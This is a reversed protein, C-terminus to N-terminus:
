KKTGGKKTGAKGAGAKRTGRRAPAKKPAPRESTRGGILSLSDVANFPYQQVSAQGTSELTVDVRRNSAWVIKQLNQKRLMRSREEATMEPNTNVLASVQAATLNKEKGHGQTDVNAAPIGQQVLYSKVAAARRESLALNFTSSGRQDAHGELLLRADPKVRLYGNLDQAVAQLTKKQSESLGAEPQRATPLNLQFYVSRLTLSRPRVDVSVQCDATGGRGDDVHGSVTVAGQASTTDLRVSAGSGRVQGGSTTWTYSLPDGDPDSANATITVPDGSIVSSKDASCTMTPPRNPRPNVTIDTSCPVIHGHGDNVSVAATYTGPAADGANWRVESGSGDVRGGTASWAYTLPDNDPDTAQARLIVIDGSGAFIANPTASCSVVPPGNQPPPPPPPAAESYGFRFVLGTSLRVGNQRDKGTADNFKTFLYDAQFTRWAFHRNLNLDLGGGLLAGFVNSHTSAVSSASIRTMGFLTHAFPTWKDNNHSTFTPGFMFTFAKGTTGPNLERISHGGFDATLGLWPRVNGTIQGTVGHMSFPGNSPPPVAACPVGTSFPICLGGNLNTRIYSYGVFVDVAPTKEGRLPSGSSPPAPDVVAPQSTTVSISTTKADAAAAEKLNRAPGAADEALAATLMFFGLVAVAVARISSRM